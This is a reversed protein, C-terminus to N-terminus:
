MLENRLQAKTEPSLSAMMERIAPMPDVHGMGGGSAYGRRAGGATGYGMPQTYGSSGSSGMAETVSRYYEAEWCSKEAEALDKIIDALDGATKTDIRNEGYKNIEREMYDLIRDKTMKIKEVM